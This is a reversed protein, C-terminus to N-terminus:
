YGREKSQLATWYQINYKKQEKSKKGGTKIEDLNIKFNNQNNQVEALKIEGNKIKDILDLANDYADFKENLTNGRYKYM